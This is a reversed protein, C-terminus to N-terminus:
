RRSARRRSAGHHAQRLRGLDAHRRTRGPSRPGRWDRDLDSAGRLQRGDVLSRARPHCRRAPHAESSITRAMRYRRMGGTVPLNEVPTGNIATLRCSVTAILEPERLM